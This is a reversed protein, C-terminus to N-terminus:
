RSTGRRYAQYAARCGQDTCYHRFTWGESDLPLVRATFCHCYHCRAACAIFPTLLWYLKPILWLRVRASLLCAMTTPIAIVPLATLAITLWTEWTM